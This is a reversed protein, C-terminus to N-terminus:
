VPQTSKIIKDLEEQTSGNKIFEDIEKYVLSKLNDAKEPDCNFSILVSLKGKPLRSARPRVSVDYTGGEKERINDTYRLDLISTIVSQCINNIM